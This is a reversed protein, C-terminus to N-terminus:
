SDDLLLLGDLLLGSHLLLGDLWCGIVFLLGSHLDVDFGNAARLDGANGGSVRPVLEGREDGGRGVLTLLQSMVVRTRQMCVILVLRRIITQQLQLGRNLRRPSVDRLAVLLERRNVRHLM